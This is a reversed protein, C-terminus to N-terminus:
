DINVGLGFTHMLKNGVSLEHVIRKDHIVNIPHSQFSSIGYSVYVYLVTMLQIHSKRHFMVLDIDKTDVRSFGANSAVVDFIWLLHGMGLVNEYIEPFVNCGPKNVQM